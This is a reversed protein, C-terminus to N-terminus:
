LDELGVLRVRDMGQVLSKLENSFGTKSFLYCIDEKLGAEKSLSLLKEYDVIDMNRNEWLCKGILTNGNQEKAIIDITGNKGYWRDWWLYNGSLRQHQNMLKLFETCVDAFYEGLYDTLNPEIKERYVEEGQGLLLRSMNPFVFRYWFGLFHDTIRYLGKKANERGEDGLPVLKEVVDLQILNKLYVIIKARSYGTVAHLDNLKRNGEALAALITNYVAPERLEQKLFQWPETFLRSDKNLFIEIINNKVSRSEQWENLYEPVGGLIANIYICNEVSSKPFRNVFDVFTFEKLKLYATIFTAFNGMSGVMENEVWRTSSSCLLLMFPTNQDFLKIFAELVEPNNRWILHFEDLVIIAKQNQRRLMSLFLHHYDLILGDMSLSGMWQQNIRELQMKNECEVGAYYYSPKGEMFETLLSTKGIGKRGYLIVLNSQLSDYQKELLKLEATRKVLM